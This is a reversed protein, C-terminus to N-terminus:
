ADHAEGEPLGGMGRGGTTAILLYCAAILLNWGAFSVLGAASFVWRDFLATCAAGIVSTHDEVPHTNAGTFSGSAHTPREIEEVRVGCEVGTILWSNPHIAPAQAFYTVLDNKQEIHQQLGV